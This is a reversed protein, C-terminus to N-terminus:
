YDKDMKQETRSFQLPNNECMYKPPKVFMISKTTILNYEIYFQNIFKTLIQNLRNVWQRIQTPTAWWWKLQSFTPILAKQIDIENYLFMDQQTKFFPKHIIMTKKSLSNSVLFNWSREKRQTIYSSEFQYKTIWDTDSENM